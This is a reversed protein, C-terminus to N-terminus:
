KSTWIGYALDAQNHLMELGNKVKAGMAKCKKMFLTEEPNYILDFCYHKEGIFEYPIDPSNNIKPSMGLPTTNVILQNAEIIEKTLDSYGLSNESDAIPTRSVFTPNIDLSQLAYEVAKSAGGTGLILANQIKATTPLMKVLSDRFGRWDTNFGMLSVGGETNHIIKITNVAGIAKADDSIFDMYKFVDQKYPITVNLGSLEPHSEILAPFSEIRELPFLKYSGDVGENIFKDAFYAPSFSHGLPYGILGLNIMM